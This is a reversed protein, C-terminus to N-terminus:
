EVKERGRVMENQRRNAMELGFGGAVHYNQKRLDALMVIFM